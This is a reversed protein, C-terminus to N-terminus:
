PKPERLFFVMALIGLLITGALVQWATSYSGTADVLYGFLPTGFIAGISNFTLVLGLARGTQAKGALEGILAYSVGQYGVMCVGALFILSMLIFPSTAPPILGLVLTVGVSLAGIIVLVIKRQGQFLRDSVVGWGIRGVMAGIQPFALAQSAWYASLGMTEKLYLPIYTLLSMQGVLLVATGFSIALLDFVKLVVKAKQASPDPPAPYGMEGGPERWLAWFLFGFLINIAGLSALAGRWGALWVLSPGLVAAVVGGAPVGTQKIGMATAREDRYFWAMVGKTSAPNLFSYGLGALFFSIFAWGFSPALAATMTFIGLFLHGNLATAHVGLRDALWGAAFSLSAMGLYFATFFLGIQARSLQLDQQYFPALTNIGYQAAAGVIHSVSILALIRWRFSDHGITPHVM